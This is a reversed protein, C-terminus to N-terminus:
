PTPTTLDSTITIEFERRIKKKKEAKVTFKAILGEFQVDLAPDDEFKLRWFLTKKAKYATELALIDPDGKKHVLSGKVSGDDFFDVPVKITRHADTTTVDDLVPTEEPYPMEELRPVKSYVTGDVSYELTFQSDALDDFENNPDAM